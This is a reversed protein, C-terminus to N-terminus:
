PQNNPIGRGFVLARHTTELVVNAAPTLNGPEGSYLMTCVTSYPSQNSPTPLLTNTAVHFTFVGHKYGYYADEYPQNEYDADLYADSILGGFGDSNETRALRDAAAYTVPCGVNSGYVLLATPTYPVLMNGNSAAPMAVMLEVDTGQNGVTAPGISVPSSIAAHFTTHGHCAKGRSNDSTDTITGSASHGSLQGHYITPQSPSGATRHSWSGAADIPAPEPYLSVEYTGPSCSDVIGTYLDSVEGHAVLFTIAQGQGTRGSYFGPVYGSAVAVGAQALTAVM